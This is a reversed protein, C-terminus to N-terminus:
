RKLIGHLGALHMMASAIEKYGKEGSGARAIVVINLGSNFM